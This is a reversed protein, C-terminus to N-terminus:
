GSSSDRPIWWDCRAHAYATTSGPRARPRLPRSAADRRDFSGRSKPSTAFRLRESRRALSRIGTSGVCRSTAPHPRWSAVGSGNTLRSGLSGPTLLRQVGSPSCSTRRLPPDPPEEAGPDSGGEREEPDERCDGSAPSAGRAGGKERPTAAVGSSAGDGSSASAISSISRRSISSAGASATTAFWAYPNNSSAAMWREARGGFKSGARSATSARPHRTSPRPSRSPSASCGRLSARECILIANTFIRSEASAPELELQAWRTDSRGGSM